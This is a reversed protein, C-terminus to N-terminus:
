GNQIHTIIEALSTESTLLDEPLTVGFLSTLATQLNVASMSDWGPIDDLLTEAGIDFTAAEPFLDKICASLTEVSMTSSM